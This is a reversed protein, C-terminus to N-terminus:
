PRLKSVLIERDPERGHVEELDISSTSQVRWSKPLPHTTPQSIVVNYRDKEVLIVDLQEKVNKIKKSIARRIAIKKFLYYSPQISSWVKSRDREMKLKLLAIDWEDLVDDMEYSVDELRKLWDKVINEKYGRKKADDLVNRIRKLENSLNLVEKEFRKGFLLKKSAKDRLFAMWPILLKSCHIQFSKKLQKM